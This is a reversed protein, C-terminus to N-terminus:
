FLDEPQCLTSILDFWNRSTVKKVMFMSVKKLVCQCLRGTTSYICCKISNGVSTEEGNYQRGLDAEGQQDKAAIFVDITFIM